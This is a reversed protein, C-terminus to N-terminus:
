FNLFHVCRSTDKEHRTRCHEELTAYVKERLIEVHNLVDISLGPTDPNFLVIARLCALERKEQFYINRIM